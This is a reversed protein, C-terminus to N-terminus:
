KTVEESETFKGGMKLLSNVLYFSTVDSCYPKSNFIVALPCLRCDKYNECIEDIIYYPLDAIIDLREKGQLLFLKEEM